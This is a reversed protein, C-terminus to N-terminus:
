ILGLDGLSKWLLFSGLIVLLTGALAPLVRLVKNAAPKLFSLVKLRPEIEAGAAAAERGILTRVYITVLGVAVLVLALGLSLALILAVALGPRGFGLALFYIWLAGPCPMMGGAFGLWLIQARSEGAKESRTAEEAVYGPIENDHPLDHGHEEGRHHHYTHPAGARLRQIGLLMVILGSLGSLAAQTGLSLTDGYALRTIVALLLISGTHTLTVTFALLLAHPWSHRSGVLYAATVTKAHGPALAHISGYLFAAVLLLWLRFINEEGSQLYEQLRRKFGTETDQNGLSVSVGEVESGTGTPQSGLAAAVPQQINVAQAFRVIRWLGEGDRIAQGIQSETRRRCAFWTNQLQERRVIKPYSDLSTSDVAFNRDAVLAFVLKGPYRRDLRDSIELLFIKEPDEPLKIKSSFDLVLDQHEPVVRAKGYLDLKQGLAKLELRVSDVTLRLSQIVEAQKKEAYCRAEEETIWGNTDADMGMRDALSPFEKLSLMLRADIFGDGLRVELVRDGNYMDRNHAECPASWVAGLVAVLIIVNRMSM